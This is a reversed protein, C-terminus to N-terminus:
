GREGGCYWTPNSVLRVCSQFIGLCRALNSHFSRGLPAFCHLTKGCSVLPSGVSADGLVVGSNWAVKLVTGRTGEKGSDVFHNSYRPTSVERTWGGTGCPVCGSATPVSCHHLDEDTCDAERVCRPQISRLCLSSSPFSVPSYSFKQGPIPLHCSATFISFEVKSIPSPFYQRPGLALKYHICLRFELNLTSPSPMPLNLHRRHTAHPHCDKIIVNRMM